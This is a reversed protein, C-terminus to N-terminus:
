TKNKSRGINSEQNQNICIQHTDRNSTIKSCQWQPVCGQTSTCHVLISVNQLGGREFTVNCDPIHDYVTVCDMENFRSMTVSSSKIVTKTIDKNRSTDMLCKCRTRRSLLPRKNRRVGPGTGYQFQMQELTSVM